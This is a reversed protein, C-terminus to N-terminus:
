QLSMNIKVCSPIAHSINPDNIALLYYLQVPFRPGLGYDFSTQHVLFLVYPDGSIGKLLTPLVIYATLKRQTCAFM